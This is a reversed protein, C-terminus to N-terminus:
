TNRLTKLVFLIASLSVIILILGRFTTFFDDVLQTYQMANLKGDESVIFEIENDLLNLTMTYDPIYRDSHSDDLWGMDFKSNFVETTESIYTDINWTVGELPELDICGDIEEIEKLGGLIDNEGTGLRPPNDVQVFNDAKRGEIVNKYTGDKFKSYKPDNEYKDLTAHPASVGKWNTIIVTGKVWDGFSDFSGTNSAGSGAYVPNGKKTDYLIIETSNTHSKIHNYHYGGGYSDVALIYEGSMPVASTQNSNYVAWIQHDLPKKNKGEFRSDRILYISIKFGTVSDRIMDSEVRFTKTSPFYAGMTGYNNQRYLDGPQNTYQSARTGSIGTPCKIWKPVEPPFGMLRVWVVGTFDINGEFAEQASLIKTFSIFILILIYKKM